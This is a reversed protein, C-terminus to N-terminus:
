SGPAVLMRPRFWTYGEEPGSSTKLTANWVANNAGAPNQYPRYAGQETFALGTAYAPLDPNPHPEYDPVASMCYWHEPDIMSIGDAGTIWFTWDLETGQAMSFQRWVWVDVQVGM